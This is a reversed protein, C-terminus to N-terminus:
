LRQRQSDGGGTGPRARPCPSGGVGGVGGWGVASVSTTRKKAPSPIAVSRETRSPPSTGTPFSCTSGASESSHPTAMPSVPCGKFPRKPCLVSFPCCSGLSELLQVHTLPPCWREMGSPCPHDSTPPSHSLAPCVGDWLSGPWWIGYPEGARCGSPAPLNQSRCLAPLTPAACTGTALPARLPPQLPPFATLWHLMGSGWHPPAWHWQGTHYRPSVLEVLWHWATAPGGRWWTARPVWGQCQHNWSRETEM